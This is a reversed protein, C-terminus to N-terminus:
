SSYLVLEERERTVKGFTIGYIENFRSFGNKWLKQFKEFSYANLLHQTVYLSDNGAEKSDFQYKSNRFNSSTVNVTDGGNVYFLHCNRIGSALYDGISDKTKFHSERILNFETVPLVKKLDHNIFKYNKPVSIYTTGIHVSKKSNLKIYNSHRFPM